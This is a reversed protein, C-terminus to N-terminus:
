TNGTLMAIGFSDIDGGSRGFIGNWKGNGCLIKVVYNEDPTYGYAFAEYDRKVTFLKLGAFRGNGFNSSFLHIGKVSEGEDLTITVPNPDSFDGGVKLMSLDYREFSIGRMRQEDRYFTIQKAM